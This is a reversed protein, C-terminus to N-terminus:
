PRLKEGRNELIKALVTISIRPRLKEQLYAGFEDRQDEKTDEFVEEVGDIGKETPGWDVPKCRTFSKNM